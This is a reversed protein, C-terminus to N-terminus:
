QQGVVGTCFNFCILCLFFATVILFLCHSYGVASDSGCCVRLFPLSGSNLAMLSTPDRLLEGM